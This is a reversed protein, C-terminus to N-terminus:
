RGTSVKQTRQGDICMQITLSYCFILIFDFIIFTNINSQEKTIKTVRHFQLLSM